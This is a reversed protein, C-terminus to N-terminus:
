LLMGDGPYSHGNDNTYTQVNHWPDDTWLDVSWYLIGTLDLSQSIFGPQIRYNIPDFDIEWKPSYDDQVLAAYSWIMEGRELAAEVQDPAEDMMVPLMVWIDVASRGEHDLLQSTPTM